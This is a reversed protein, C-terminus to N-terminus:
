ARAGAIMKQYLTEYVMVIREMSFSQAVKKQAATGKLQLSSPDDQIQRLLRAADPEIEQPDTLWSWTERESDQSVAAAPTSLAPVGCAMTELLFNSLGEADSLLIALDSAQYYPAPDKVNHIIQVSDGLSPWRQPITQAQAESNALLLLLNWHFGPDSAHTNWINLLREVGKGPVWRGAYVATLRGERLKLSARKQQQQEASVPTFRRTDVANPIRQIRNEPIGLKKFEKETEESPCVLQQVGRKFLGLKLHGRGLRQSTGVDGTPGAGASKVLVPKSSLKGAALAILAPMAVMHAHYLDYDRNQLLHKFM